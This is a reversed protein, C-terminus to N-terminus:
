NGGLLSELEAQLKAFAEDRLVPEAALASPPEPLALWSRCGGGDRGGGKSSEAFAGALGTRQLGDVLLDAAM